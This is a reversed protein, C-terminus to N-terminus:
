WPGHRSICTGAGASNLRVLDRSLNGIVQSVASVTIGDDEENFGPSRRVCHSRESDKVFYFCRPEITPENTPEQVSKLVPPSILFSM